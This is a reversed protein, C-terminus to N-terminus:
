FLVKSSFISINTYIANVLKKLDRKELQKEKVMEGLVKLFSPVPTDEQIPNADSIQPVTAEVGHLLAGWNQFSASPLVAQAQYTFVGDGIVADINPTKALKVARGMAGDVGIVFVRKPSNLM